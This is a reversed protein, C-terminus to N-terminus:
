LRSQNACGYRHGAQSNGVKRAQWFRLRPDQDHEDREIQEVSDCTRQETANTQEEMKFRDHDRQGQRRHYTIWSDPPGHQTSHKPTSHRQDNEIHDRQQMPSADKMQIWHENRPQNVDASVDRRQIGITEPDKPACLIEFHGALKKSPQMSPRQLWEMPSVEGSHRKRASHQKIRQAM